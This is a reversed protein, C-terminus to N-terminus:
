WVFAMLLDNVNTNTPGTLIHDGLAQFYHYSDNRVLYDAAELHLARGRCVTSGDVIAGAADTPGDTGDTALAVVAVNEWNELALAAALAFEQNRGGLGAGSITVTTEGGAVICAPPRVPERHCRVEKVVAALFRAAERAEGEVFTSLRLPHYGMEQVKEVVAQVALENSAIIQTTVKPWPATRDDRRASAETELHRLVPDPLLRALNYRGIISLADGATSSDPVTPGSGIIGLPSGVVDSVVLAVVDAPFARQALKGGKIQSLRKRITNIENITAGSRLLADNTAQLDALSIGSAPAVLLASCGGSILAIVLTRNNTSDLLDLMAATGQVGASNPVPHAAEVIEIRQTPVRYGDKVIVLGATLRDGLLEEVAQAMPGSAKGAGVVLIRDYRTLDWHRDGLHLVADGALSLTRRVAAAPDAAALAYEIVSDIDPGDLSKSRM